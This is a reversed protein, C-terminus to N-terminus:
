FTGSVNVGVGDLGIKPAVKMKAARRAEKKRATYLLIGGVVVGVAGVGLAVHSVTRANKAYRKLADADDKTSQRCNDTNGPCLKRAEAGKSSALWESLAGVTLGALGIGGAVYAATYRPRAPEDVPDAPLRSTDPLAPGSAASRTPGPEGGSTAVELEPVDIRTPAGGASVQVMRQWSRHGPAQAYVSHRGIDVRLDSDWQRPSLSMGDLSVHLGEIPARAVQIKLRALRPEIAMARATALRKTEASSRAETAIQRYLAWARSARGDKEWCDALSWQTTLAPQRRQSEELKGCAERYRGLAMLSQGEFLAQRGETSASKAQAPQSWGFGASLALVLSPVIRHARARLGRRFDRWLWRVGVRDAPCTPAAMDAHTAM